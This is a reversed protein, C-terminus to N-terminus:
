NNIMDYCFDTGVANNLCDTSKGYFDNLILGCNNFTTGGIVEPIVTNDFDENLASNNSNDLVAGLHYRTANNCTSGSGATTLGVYFYSAGTGPDKPEVSIYTPVLSPSLNPPYHNNDAYYQSLAVQLSKIDAIRKADKSSSRATSLSAIIIGSLITIIAIAVMLEILTFGRKHMYFTYM